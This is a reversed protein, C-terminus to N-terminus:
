QEHMEVESIFNYDEGIVLKNWERELFEKKVKHIFEIDSVLRYMTVAYGGVDLFQLGKKALDPNETLCAAVEMGAVSVANSASAIVNSWMLIKRTKVEYLDREPIKNPDYFLGHIASILLNILVSAAAQAGWVAIDKMMVLSDYGEKYLKGATDPAFTEIIPVPLGLKTFEDSKLHLAQAFVAAPLRNPNEKVSDIADLIAAVLTTRGEWHKSSGMFVDFTSFDDLTITDSLINIPGFIWGLVPDHGLTHIRHYKGEMSDVRIIDKLLEFQKPSGVTVDYPVTEFIINEWDRHKRSKVKKQDAYTNQYENRKQKEMDLISKDNHDLRSDSIKKELLGNIEGIIIWRGVQLATAFFLFAADTKNLGTATEFQRDIDDLYKDANLYIEVRRNADEILEDLGKKAREYQSCELAKQSLNAQKLKDYKSM